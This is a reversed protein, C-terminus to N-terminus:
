GPVRGELMAKYLQGRQVKEFSIRGIAAQRIAGYRKYFLLTGFSRTRAIENGEMLAIKVTRSGLDIGINM